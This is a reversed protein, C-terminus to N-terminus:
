YLHVTGNSCVVEEAPVGQNWYNGKHIEEWQKKTGAFTISSLNKCDFFAESDITTVSNPITVSTLDKCNYFAREDIYTVSEPITVGTLNYCGRFAYYGIANVDESLVLDGSLAVNSSNNGSYADWYTDIEGDVINIVNQELLEDWSKLLNNTGTEYLGAAKTYHLSNKRRSNRSTESKQCASLTTILTIAALLFALMKKIKM